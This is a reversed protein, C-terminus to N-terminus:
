YIINFIDAFFLMHFYFLRTFIDRPHLYNSSLMMLFLAVTTFTVKEYNYTDLMGILLPKIEGFQGGSYM